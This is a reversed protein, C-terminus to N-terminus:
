LCLLPIIILVFVALLLIGGGVEQPTPWMM